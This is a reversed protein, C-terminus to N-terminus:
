EGLKAFELNDIEAMVLYGSDRRRNLITNFELM